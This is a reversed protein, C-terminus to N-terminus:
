LPILNLSLNNSATNESENLVTRLKMPNLDCLSSAPDFLVKEKNQVIRNNLLYHKAHKNNLVMHYAQKSTSPETCVVHTTNRQWPKAHIDASQILQTTHLTSAAPLVTVQVHMRTPGSASFAKPAFLVLSAALILLTAGANIYKILHVM